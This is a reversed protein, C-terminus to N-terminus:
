DEPVGDLANRCRTKQEIIQELIDQYVEQNETPRKGKANFYHESYLRFTDLYIFCVFYSQDAQENLSPWEALLRLAPNEIMEKYDVLLFNRKVLKQLSKTEEQVFDWSRQALKKTDIKRAASPATQLTKEPTQSPEQQTPKNQTSQLIAYIVVLAAVLMIIKQVYSEAPKRAGYHPCAKASHAVEKKCERCKVLAM